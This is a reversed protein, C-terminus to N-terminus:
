ELPIEINRNFDPNEDYYGKPNCIVRTDGIKYDFCSHVHGHAWYRINTNDLILESLDSYYGGNMYFDHKYKQHISLQSPAHHTVVFVKRDKADNLQTKLWAVNANFLAHSRKPTFRAYNSGARIIRFDNMGDGLKLYTIADGKNCDTWLTTLLFTWDGIDHRLQNGIVIKPNINKTLCELTDELHYGYSEHNGPVYLVHNYKNACNEFFQTYRQHLEGNTTLHKATCIDGALILVDGGPVDFFEFENHLDSFIHAKM